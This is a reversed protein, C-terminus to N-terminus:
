LYIQTCGISNLTLILMCSVGARERIRLGNEDQSREHLHLGGYVTLQPSDTLVVELNRSICGNM